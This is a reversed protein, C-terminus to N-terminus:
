LSTIALISVLLMKKGELSHICRSVEDEIVVAADVDVKVELALEREVGDEGVDRARGRVVADDEGFGEGAAHRVGDHHRVRAAREETLEHRRERRAIVSVDERVGGDYEAGARHEQRESQILVGIAALDVRERVVLVALDVEHVLQSARPVRPVPTDYM